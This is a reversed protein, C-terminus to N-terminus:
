GPRQARQRRYYAAQRARHSCSAHCFRRRHHGRVFFMTCGPGPCRRLRALEESTLWEAAAHALEGLQQRSPTGSLQLSWSIGGDDAVLRPRASAQEMLENIARVADAAVPQDLLSVECIHHVADRLGLLLGHDRAAIPRSGPLAASQWMRVLAMEGLFDIADAGVGYRTNALEVALPEGLIPLDDATM